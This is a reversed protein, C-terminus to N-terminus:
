PKADRVLRFGYDAYHFSPPISSRAACRSAKVHHRWSGGRSARRGGRAPGQPNEQPSQAYYGAAYWDACWEHVNEGLDYLGFENPSGSGVPLAGQVAGGWRRVYEPWNQPPQNGWPYLRGQVGGLAAWEWEAETPLRYRFTATLSLWECYSVADFWSVAVVPQSPDNLAPNNWEGPLPAGTAEVFLAYERNTVQFRAMEFSAISVIHVPTEDQRGQECGMEFVAGPIRVCDPPLAGAAARPTSKAVSKLEPKLESRIETMAQGDGTKAAHRAGCDTEM